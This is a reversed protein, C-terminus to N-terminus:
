WKSLLSCPSWRIGGEENNLLYFIVTIYRIVAGQTPHWKGKIPTSSEKRVIRANNPCLGKGQVQM